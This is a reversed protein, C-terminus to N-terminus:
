RSNSARSHFHARTQVLPLSAAVDRHPTERAKRDNVGSVTGPDSTLKTVWNIRETLTVEQRGVVPLYESNRHSRHSSPRALTECQASRCAFQTQPPPVPTIAASRSPTSQSVQATCLHRHSDLSRRSTRPADRPLRTGCATAPGGCGSSCRRTCIVASSTVVQEYVLRPGIWLLPFPSHTSSYALECCATAAGSCIFRLQCLKQPM